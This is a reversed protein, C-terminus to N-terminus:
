SESSMRTMRSTYWFIPLAMLQIFVSFVVLGLISKSYLYGMLWSGLFWAVGFGTDFLGFATARKKAATIGAILPKLLSDQAAMGLGWLIMGLIAFKSHNLFIFPSFFASFFLTGIITKTKSHDFLRGLIISGIAGIAMALAYYIPINGSSVISIKQFHYGILAFDTFGAAICGAALLYWWYSKSLGESQLEYRKELERPQPFYYRAVLITAICLLASILLLSYGSRYNGKLFLVLGMVLPGLTAGVQDLAENLGFAWGQGVHSGAYSILTETAPKRIARGTREAIILAAALPWNGALALAPVALMNISYGLIIAVWYRGSKDTFYGVISRLGYGLLEGFGATFGVITASAGLIGLFQGNISRAAEYTFDAFLNAIGLIVVFGLAIKALSQTKQNM